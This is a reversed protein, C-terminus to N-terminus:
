SDQGFLTKTWKTLTNDLARAIIRNKETVESMDGSRKEYDEIRHMVGFSFSRYDRMITDNVNKLNNYSKRNNRYLKAMLEEYKKKYDVHSKIMSDSIIGLERLQRDLNVRILEQNFMKVRVHLTKDLKPRIEGGLKSHNLSDKTLISDKNAAKFTFLPSSQYTSSKNTPSTILQETLIKKIQSPERFQSTFRNFIIDIFDPKDILYAKMVHFTQIHKSSSKLFEDYNIVMEEVLPKFQDELSPAVRTNIRPPSRWRPSRNRDGMSHKSSSLSLSALRLNM